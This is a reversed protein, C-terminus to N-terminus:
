GTVTCFYHYDERNLHQRAYECHQEYLRSYLSIYDDDPENKLCIDDIYYRSWLLQELVVAIDSFRYVDDKWKNLASPYIDEVAPAGFREAATFRDFLDPLYQAERRNCSM